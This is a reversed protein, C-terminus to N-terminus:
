TSNIEIEDAIKVHINFSIDRIPSLEGLINLSCVEVLKLRWSNTQKIKLTGELKKKLCPCDQEHHSTRLFPDNPTSINKQHIQTEGSCSSTNTQMGLVRM